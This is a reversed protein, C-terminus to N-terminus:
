INDQKVEMVKKINKNMSFNNLINNIDINKPIDITYISTYEDVEKNDIIIDEYSVFEISKIKIAKSAFSTEIFELTEKSNLYHVEIVKEGSKTIFRNQFRKLAVLTLSIFVTGIISLTYYGMGIALGVCAVVWLSAATTLGKISGKTHLITGAGLFGVGTIVQAGLRSLDVKVVNNLSPNSAIMGLAENAMDVQILSVIAAGVCVLIHTRFGAPRNKFEREYGIVGGVIVALSLRLLIYLKM